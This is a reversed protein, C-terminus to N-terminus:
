RGGNLTSGTGARSSSHSASTMRASSQTSRPPANRWALVAPLTVALITLAVSSWFRCLPALMSYWASGAASTAIAAVVSTTTSSRSSASPAPARLSGHFGRTGALGRAPLPWAMLMSCTADVSRASNLSGSFTVKQVSPRPQGISMQGNCFPM